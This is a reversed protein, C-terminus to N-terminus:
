ITAEYDREWSTYSEYTKKESDERRGVKQVSIEETESMNKTPSAAYSALEKPTTM